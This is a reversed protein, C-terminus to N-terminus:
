TTVRRIKESYYSDSHLDTFFYGLILNAFAM